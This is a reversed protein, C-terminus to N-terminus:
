TGIWIGYRTQRITGRVIVTGTVVQQGTQECFKVSHFSATTAYPCYKPPSMPWCSIWGNAGAKLQIEFETGYFSRERESKPIVFERRERAISDTAKGPVFTPSTFIFELSEISKLQDRLAEYAYISFCSAAIKLHCSSTLKKKLNDGFLQNVNDIIEM